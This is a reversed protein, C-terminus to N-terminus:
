RKFGKMILRHDDTFDIMKQRLQETTTGLVEFSEIEFTAVFEPMFNSQMFQDVHFEAADHNKYVEYLFINSGDENSYYNYVLTDPETAEVNSVLRNILDDVKNSQGEIINLDLLFIIQEDDSSHHMAWTPSSILLLVLILHKM